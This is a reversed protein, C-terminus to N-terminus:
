QCRVSRSWSGEFSEDCNAPPYDERCNRVEGLTPCSQGVLSSCASLMPNFSICSPFTYYQWTQGGGVDEVTVNTPANSEFATWEASTRTPIFIDRGSTNTITKQTGGADITITQPGAGSNVRYGTNYTGLAFVLSISLMAVGFISVLFIICRKLLCKESLRKFYEFLHEM